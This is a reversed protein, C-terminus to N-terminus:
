DYEETGKSQALIHRKAGKVLKVGCFPCFQIKTSAKRFSAECAPCSWYVFIRFCVYGGGVVAALIGALRAQYNMELIVIPLVLIFIPITLWSLLAVRKCRTKFQTFVEEQTISM